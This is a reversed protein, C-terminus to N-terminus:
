IYGHAAATDLSNQRHFSCSVFGAIILVVNRGVAIVLGAVASEAARPHVQLVCDVYGLRAIHNDATTSFIIERCSVAAALQGHSYLIRTCRISRDVVSVLFAISRYEIELLLQKVALAVARLNAVTAYVKCAIVPMEVPQMDCM